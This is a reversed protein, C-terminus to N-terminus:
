KSELNSTVVEASLINRNGSNSGSNRSNNSGHDSSSSSSSSNLDNDNANEAQLTMVLAEEGDAYYEKVTGDYDYSLKDRYLGIAAKNSVRCHLTIKKVAHTDIMNKHIQDMLTYAVGRGRYERDVAISTIHGIYSPASHAQGPEYVVKFANSLPAMEVRGLAYGVFSKDDGNEAILSLEPWSEIHCQFFIDPYNEPLNDLNCHRIRPIDDMNARRITLNSPSLRETQVVVNRQSSFFLINLLRVSTKMISWSHTNRYRKM